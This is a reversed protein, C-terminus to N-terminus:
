SELGLGKRQLLLENAEAENKVQGERLAAAAAEANTEAEDAIRCTNEQDRVMRACSRAELEAATKSKQLHQWAIDSVGDDPSIDTNGPQTEIKLQEEDKALNTAIKSSTSASFIPPEPQQASSLIPLQALISSGVSPM